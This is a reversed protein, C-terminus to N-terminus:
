SELIIGMILKPFTELFWYFRGMVQLCLATKGVNSSDIIRYEIDWTNVDMVNAGM